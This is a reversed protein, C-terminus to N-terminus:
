ALAGFLCALTCAFHECLGGFTPSRNRLPVLQAVSFTHEFVGFVLLPASAYLCWDPWASLTRLVRLVPTRKRLSVLLAV